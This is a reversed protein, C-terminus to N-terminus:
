EDGVEEYDDPVFSQADFDEFVEKLWEIREWEEKNDDYNLNLEVCEVLDEKDRAYYSERKIRRPYNQYLEWVKDQADKTLQRPLATIFKLDMTM